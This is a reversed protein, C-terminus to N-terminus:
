RPYVGRRRVPPREGKSGSGPFRRVCGHPRGRTHRPGKGVLFRPWVELFQAELQGGRWRYADPRRPQSRFGSALASDRGKPGYSRPGTGRAPRRFVLFFAGMLMAAGRYPAVEATLNPRPCRVRAITPRSSRRRAPNPVHSTTASVYRATVNIMVILVSNAESIPWSESEVKSVGYAEGAHGNRMSM